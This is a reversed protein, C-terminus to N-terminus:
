NSVKNFAKDSKILTKVKAKLHEYPPKTQFSAITTREHDVEKYIYFRRQRVVKAIVTLTQISKGNNFIHFKYYWGSAGSRNPNKVSLVALTDVKFDEIPEDQTNYTVYDGEYLTGGSCVLLPLVLLPLALIYFKNSM